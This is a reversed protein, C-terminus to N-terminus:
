RANCRGRRCAVVASEHACSRSVLFARCTALVFLLTALVSATGGIGVLFQGVMPESGEVAAAEASKRPLDAILLGAVLLILGGGYLGVLVGLLRDPRPLDFGQHSMALLLGMLCLTISGIVAHYHAPVMADNERISFGLVVGVVFLLVAMSGVSGLPHGACREWRLALLWFLGLSGALAMLLTYAGRSWLEVSLLPIAAGAIACALIAFVALNMLPHAPNVRFRTPALLRELSFMLVLLHSVQLGHGLSWAIEVPLEAGGGGFRLAVLGAGALAAVCAFASGGLLLRRAGIWEGAGVCACLARVATSGIGAFFSALGAFFFPNDILPLYDYLLPRGGFAPSAAMLLIGAASLTIEAEAARGRRTRVWWEFFTRGFGALFFPIAAGYLLWDRDTTLGAIAMAWTAAALAVFWWVRPERSDDPM